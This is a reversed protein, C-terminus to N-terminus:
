LLIEVLIELIGSIIDMYISDGKGDSDRHVLDSWRYILEPGHEFNGDPVVMILMRYSSENKSPHGYVGLYSPRPNSAIDIYDLGCTASSADHRDLEFSVGQNTYSFYLDADGEVSELVIRTPRPSKLEYRSYNGGAVVGEFTFFRPALDEEPKQPSSQENNATVYCIVVLARLTWGVLMAVDSIVHM